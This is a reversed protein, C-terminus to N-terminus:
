QEVPIAKVPENVVISEFLEEYCDVIEKIDLKRAINISEKRFGELLGPDTLMAALHQSFLFPQDLPVCYGNIGNEIIGSFGGIQTGLMALGMALAQIGVIPFGEYLSPLFLIDSKRYWELVEDPTIWGTLVIRDQLRLMEIERLIEGRMEGDGIMTCQWDLEKIAALSRVVQLPNKQPTLRGIFLIHPRSNPQISGQWLSELDVGNHIVQVPVPYRKLALARTYESVAVIKTANKWIPPTLPFIWRFWRDTKDPVGGPIDGLHVTLVYPISTLRHWAWAPAGGPVAFHAHIVDPRWEQILRLGKATANCIYAAMSILSAQYAQQRLASLRYIRIGDVLEVKPMGRMGSTLITVEHGKKVLGHCLDYAVRGGGGGIPPFEHISVLIRM